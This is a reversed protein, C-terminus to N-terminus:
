SHEPRTLSYPTDEEPWGNFYGDLLIRAEALDFAKEIREAETQEGTVFTEWLTESGAILHALKQEAGPVLHAWAEPVEFRGFDITKGPYVRGILHGGSDCEILDFADRVRPYNERNVIM